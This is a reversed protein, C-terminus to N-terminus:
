TSARTFKAKRNLVTLDLMEGSETIDALLIDVFPHQRNFAPGGRYKSSAIRNIAALNSNGLANYEARFLSKRKGFSQKPDVWDDM